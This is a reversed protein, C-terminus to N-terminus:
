SKKKLKSKLNKQNNKSLWDKIIQDLVLLEFIGIKSRGQGGLKKPRQLDALRQNLIMKLSDLKLKLPLNLSLIKSVVEKVSQAELTAIVLCGSEAAQFSKKLIEASKIEDLAIVDPDQRMIKTFNNETLALQNLGDIKETPHESLVYINKGENNLQELLAYLTSSKGHQPPSSVIILGSREKLGNGLSQYDNKLLGLQKLRWHKSPKDILNIIIKEGHKDPIITLYFSSQYHNNFIKCYKKTTLEGPAVKLLERLNLILNKELKKPLTFSKKTGDPFHYHSILSNVGSELVLDKAGESTAYNLLHSIIKKSM